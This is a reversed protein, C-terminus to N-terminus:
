EYKELFRQIITACEARNAKGQPDLAAGNDKGSIIKNAVAWQMAEKAFESVSSADKYGSFDEKKSTDYGKYNAYRYMMVAIQERNINDAPGFMGSDTYRTVVKTDAAWLIADTFWQGDPVDPFTEKYEVEPTNNLRYLIVAFQARALPQNPGFHTSNLGTMIGNDYVYQVYNEYWDGKNVDVFIDSVSVANGAVTVKIKALATRGARVFVFTSGEGVATITGNEVTAVKSDASNWTLDVGEADITATM